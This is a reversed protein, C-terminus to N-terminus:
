SNLKDLADEDDATIQVHLDEDDAPDSSRAGPPRGRGEKVSGRGRIVIKAGTEKELRKTRRKTLAEKQRWERTNIRAGSEGYVPEPSPSREYENRPDVWKGQQVLQLKQEVLRLQSQLEVVHPDAHLSVLAAISEPLVIQGAAGAAGAGPAPRAEAVEWRSSRRRKLPPEAGPADHPPAADPPPAAAPPAAAPADSPAPPGAVADSAGPQQVQELIKLGAETEKGWRSKKRRKGEDPPGSPQGAKEAAATPVDAAADM